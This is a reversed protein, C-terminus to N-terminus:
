KLMVKSAGSENVMIYIGPILKENHIRIGSLTYIEAKGDISDIAITSISSFSLTVNAHNSEAAVGYNYIPIVTYDFQYEGAETNDNFPTDTFTLATIPKDTIQKGDRFIHYGTIALDEPQSPAAEFTVDDIFLALTDYTNHRIAFYKAGAPLEIEFKTWIEPVNGDAPMGNITEIQATFSEVKNDTTSYYVEFTEPWAVTFSRAWFTVTQEAGSLEPSILWNDNDASQASIALMFTNGSHAEADAKYTDPINAVENNFLQFALPQTQYPNYLERFVNYTKEGDGDYVTWGGAGTISMPTYDPNEFDETITEPAAEGIEPASWNLIVENVGPTATLDTVTAYSARSIAITGTASNDATNADGDAKIDLTIELTEPANLAVEYELACDAFANPQMEALSETAVTEGNASWIATPTVAATGLNEIHAKFSLKDGAKAKEPCSMTVLRVDTDALDRVRINDLPVSWTHDDDNHAATLKLEFMVAGISKFDDLPIRAQTWGTTPTEQLNISHISSLNDIETGALVDIISGQGQYWFELVPKRAQSIDARVSILGYNVNVEYPMWYYFGNDGDQSTLPQPADPDEPDILSPFYNDDVTGMMQGQRDSGQDALWIGDYLGNAFSETFPLAAPLGVTAINSTCDLSYNNNYAATVQYAFFDQGNLDPYTFTYSTESVEALAPDYYSGFADFIFYTVSQPDVYGGNEGVEGVPDWTLTATRYDKNVALKVNTPALPTDPGCWINKYEVKEGAVDDIYAIGTFRNNIGAYMEVDNIVITQGPQVDDYTFKDVGWRSTIEVKSIKELDKGSKTKTPATYTVTAKLEGKPALVWSLEGAAPPDVEVPPTVSGEQVSLNALKLTGKISKPTTCHFGIYYYGESPIACNYEYKTMDKTTYRTNAVIEAMMGEVSPEKGLKVEMEVGTAGSGMYGVEFGVTYNGPMFHIPVTFLWDDNNDINDANPCMCASYGNVKGYQWARNDNNANISTYNQIETGAKGLDHTFPVEAANAPVDADAPRINLPRATQSHQQLNLQKVTGQYRGTLRQVPVEAAAGIAATIAITFLLFIKM